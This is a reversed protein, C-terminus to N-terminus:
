LSSLNPSPPAAGRGDIGGILTHRCYADFAYISSYDKLQNFPPQPCLPSSSDKPLAPPSARVGKQFVIFLPTHSSPFRYFPSNSFDKLPGDIYPFSFKRFINQYIM